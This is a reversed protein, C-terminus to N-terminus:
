RWSNDPHHPATVKVGGQNLLVHKRTHEGDFPDDDWYKSDHTYIEEIGAQVISNCCAFCPFKTVYICSGKLSVGIRTANLIANAEAHCIWTLKESVHELLKEDDIVGRALGNFGTALVLKDKSVIVAGVQCRPDKSKQAVAEAISHFYEDWNEIYVLSENSTREDPNLQEELVTSM